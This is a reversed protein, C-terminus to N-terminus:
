AASMMVISATMTGLLLFLVLFVVGGVFLCVFLFVLLHGLGIMTFLHFLILSECSDM